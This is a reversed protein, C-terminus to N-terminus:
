LGGLNAIQSGQTEVRAAGLYASILRGSAEELDAMGIVRNRLQEARRPLLQGFEGMETSIARIIGAANEDIPERAQHALVRRALETVAPILNSAVAEDLADAQLVWKRRLSEIAEQSPIPDVDNGFAGEREADSLADNTMTVLQHVLKNAVMVLRARPLLDPDGSM